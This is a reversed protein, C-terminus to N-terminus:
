PTEFTVEVDAPDVSEALELTLIRDEGEGDSNLPPGDQIFHLVLTGSEDQSVELQVTEDRPFGAWTVQVRQTGVIEVMSEFWRVNMTAQGQVAEAGTVLDAPDDIVVDVASGSGTILRITGIEISPLPTGAPSPDPSAPLSPRPAPETPTPTAPPETPGGFGPVQGLLPPLVVVAALVVAAASLAWQFAPRQWLSRRAPLSRAFVRLADVDRPSVQSRALLREQLAREFHDTM